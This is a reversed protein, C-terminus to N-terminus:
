LGCAELKKVVLKEGSCRKLARASRETEESLLASKRSMEKRVVVFMLMINNSVFM